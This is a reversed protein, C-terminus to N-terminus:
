DSGVAGQMGAAAPESGSDAWLRRAMTYVGLLVGVGMVLAGLRIEAAIKLAFFVILGLNILWMSAADAWPLRERESAARMSIVALILNTMMGVFAAHGAVAFYWSPILEFGQGPGVGYLFFVMYVVLWLGGFFAWPRPGEGTPGLLIARWGYRVLYIFFGLLLLLGFVPLLQEVLNLFFALPVIAAGVTWFVAQLMGPWTWRADRDKAAIWEIIAAGVLFLYTDMMAAHAGVRDGEPLPLFRGIVRELGLLMGVTGGIAAVLLAGAALIQVTTTPNQRGLGALAYVAAIWLVVVSAAGFIPLLALLPGQGRSFALWFNPIYGAFVIVAAVMIFREGRGGGADGAPGSNLVWIALGIASLSIWGISGAHLHILLQWRPLDGAAFSNDFGFFINILFLVLAGLFLARLGRWIVENKITPTEM